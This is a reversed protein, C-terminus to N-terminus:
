KPNGREGPEITCFGNKSVMYSSYANQFLPRRLQNLAKM